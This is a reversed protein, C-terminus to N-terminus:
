TDDSSDELKKSLSQAYMEADERRGMVAEYYPVDESGDDLVGIAFFDVFVKYPDSQGLEGVFPLWGPVLATRHEYFDGHDVVVMGFRNIREIV